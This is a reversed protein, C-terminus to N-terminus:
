SEMHLYSTRVTNAIDQALLKSRHKGKKCGIAVLENPHTQVYDLIEKRNNQFEPSKTDHTLERVDFVKQANMPAWRRDYGFSMLM